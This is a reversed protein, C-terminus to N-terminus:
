SRWRHPSCLLLHATQSTSSLFLKSGGKIYDYETLPTKNGYGLFCSILDCFITVLRNTTMKQYNLNVFSQITLSHAKDGSVIAYDLIEERGIEPVLRFEM